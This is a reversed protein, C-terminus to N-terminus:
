YFSYFWYDNFLYTFHTFPPIFSIFKSFLIFSTLLICLYFLNSNFQNKLFVTIINVIFYILDIFHICCLFPIFCIFYIFYIFHTFRFLYIFYIRKLNVIFLLPTKSLFNSPTQQTKWRLHHVLVFVFRISTQNISSCPLFQTKYNSYICCFYKLSLFYLSSDLLYKFTM